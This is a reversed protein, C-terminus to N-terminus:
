CYFSSIMPFDFCQLGAKNLIVALSGSLKNCMTDKGLCIGSFNVTIQFCILIKEIEKLM